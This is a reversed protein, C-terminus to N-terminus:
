PRASGADVSVLYDEADIDFGTWAISVAIGGAGTCSVAFTASLEQGATVTLKREAGEDVSCNSAVGGLRLVHTGGHIDPITIAGNAGVTATLRDDVSVVYGDPDVDLGSTTLSLRISGTRPGTADQCGAALALVLSLGMGTRALLTWGAERCAALRLAGVLWWEQLQKM